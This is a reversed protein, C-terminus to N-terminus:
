DGTAPVLRDLSQVVSADSMTWWLQKHHHVTCLAARGPFALAFDSGMLKALLAEVLGAFGAREGVEFEVASGDNRHALAAADIGAAALAAPMWERSGFDLEYAWHSKPMVWVPGPLYQEWAVAALEALNREFPPPVHRMLPRAEPRITNDDPGVWGVHHTSTGEAFGWAGSNHYLSM